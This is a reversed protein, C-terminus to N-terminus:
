STWTHQELTRCAAALLRELAAQSTKPTPTTEAGGGGWRRAVSARPRALLLDPTPLTPPPYTTCNHTRSPPIFSLSNSNLSVWCSKLHKRFHQCVPPLLAPHSQDDRNKQESSPQPRLPLKIKAWNGTERYIRTVSFGIKTITKKNTWTFPEWKGLNGNETGCVLTDM